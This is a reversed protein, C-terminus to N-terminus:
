KSKFLFNSVCIYGDTSQGGYRSVDGANIHCQSWTKGDDLSVGVHGQQGIYIMVGNIEKFFYAVEQSEFICEFNQQSDANALPGKWVGQSSRKVSDTRGDPLTASGVDTFENDVGIIISNDVDQKLIVGLPRQISKSTSNIRIFKMDDYPYLRAFSDSQIVPISIIWGAPYAEGTGVMYGDKYRNISHIHRINLNNHPNYVCEKLRFSTATLLEVKFLVGDGASLANHGTNVIWDWENEGASQKTFLIIDHDNLNHNSATTVLIDTEGSTISTVAVPTGYKFKKTKEPEKNSENPTYQSRKIINYLGSGANAMMGIAVINRQLVAPGPPKIQTDDSDILEGNAGFEYRCFWNRGGDNSMFVCMRTSQTSESNGKYTGIMSLKSHPEFGGMFGMPNGQLGRSRDTFYFRGFKVPQGSQNTKELVAPFGGNGYGNDINVAPHMEYSEDPLAPFYRYKGSAILDADTGTKSRVPTWREPLEWVCSEDFRKYDGPQAAGDSNTDRSPFNHFVQGKNTIVNMRWDYGAYANTANRSWPILIVHEIFSNPILGPFNGSSLEIIEKSGNLGTLSIALSSSDNWIAVDRLLATLKRVYKNKYVVIKNNEFIKEIDSDDPTTGGIANKIISELGDVSVPTEYEEKTQIQKKIDIPIDNNYFVFDASVNVLGDLGALSLASLGKTDIIVTQIEGNLYLQGNSIVVDSSENYLKRDNLLTANAAVVELNTKIGFFRVYATTASDGGNIYVRAFKAGLPITLLNSSGIVPITLKDWYSHSKVPKISYLLNNTSHIDFARMTQDFTYSLSVTGNTDLKGISVRNFRSVDVLYNRAIGTKVVFKNLINYGYRTIEIVPVDGEYRSNSNEYWGCILLNAKEEISSATIQMTNFNNCDIAESSLYANIISNQGNWHQYKAVRRGQTLAM